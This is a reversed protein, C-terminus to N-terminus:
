PLGEPDRAGKACPPCLGPVMGATKRLLTETYKRAGNGAQAPDLGFPALKTLLGSCCASSAPIGSARPMPCEM